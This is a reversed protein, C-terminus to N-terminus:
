WARVAEQDQPRGAGALGLCASGVPGRPLGAAAFATETARDLEGFAAAPGVAKMNSPGAEGRGLISLRDQDMSGLLAMTHTGGGDIGLRLTPHSARPRSD